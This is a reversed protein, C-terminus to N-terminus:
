RFWRLNDTLYRNPRTGPHVVRHAFITSGKSSFRVVQARKPRILHPRSGEHHLYAYHLSSGIEVYPGLLSRGYKWGISKKLAGTKVGVQAKAKATIIIAKKVLYKSVNGEPSNLVRQIERDNFQFVVPSM